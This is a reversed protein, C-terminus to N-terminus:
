KRRRSLYFGVAVAFTCIAISYPLFSVLQSYKNNPEEVNALKLDTAIMKSCIPHYFDKHKLFVQVALEKGMESAFLARYLPRVYKM